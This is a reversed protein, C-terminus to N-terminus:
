SPRAAAVARAIATRIASPNVSGRVHPEQSEDVPPGPITHTPPTMIPRTSMAIMPITVAM